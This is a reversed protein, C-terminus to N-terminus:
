RTLLTLKQDNFSLDKQAVEKALEETAFEVFVSGKFKRNAGRRLRVSLVEGHKSFFDRVTELTV